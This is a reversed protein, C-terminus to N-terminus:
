LGGRLALCVDRGRGVSLRVERVERGRGAGLCALQPADLVCRLVRRPATATGAAATTTRSRRRPGGVFILMIHRLKQLVFSGIFLYFSSPPGLLFRSAGSFHKRYIETGDFAAAHYGTARAGRFHYKSPRGPCMQFSKEKSWLTSRSNYYPPTSVGFQGDTPLTGPSRVYVM